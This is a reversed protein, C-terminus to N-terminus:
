LQRLIQEDHRFNRDLLLIMSAVLIRSVGIPDYDLTKGLRTIHEHFLQSDSVMEVLSQLASQQTTGWLAAVEMEEGEVIDHVHEAHVLGLRAGLALWKVLIRKNRRLREAFVVRVPEPYEPTPPLTKDPMYHIVLDAFAKQPEIYRMVDPRRREIEELVEQPTYGRAGSDRRVKWRVRLENDTDFYIRLDLAERLKELYLTHLGELIVIDKPVIEEMPGFRGTAHDYTPKVIPKGHRLAWVHEILLGLNNAKWPNLATVGIANREDRDLSHYDDLTLVTVRDVGLLEQLAAAYTSKGAGSDGAIGIMTIRHRRSVM